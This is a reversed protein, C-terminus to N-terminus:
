RKAVHFAILVAVAVGGIILVAQETNGLIDKLSAGLNSISNKFGESFQSPDANNGTLTTTVIQDQSAQAQAATERGGAARLEDATGEEILNAKTWPDVTGSSARWLVGISDSM